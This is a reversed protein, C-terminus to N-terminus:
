ASGSPRPQHGGFLQQALATPDIQAAQAPATAQEGRLPGSHRPGPPARRECTHRLALCRAHSRRAGPLAAVTRRGPGHHPGPPNAPAHLGAPRGGGAHGRHGRDQLGGRRVGRRRGTARHGASGTDAPSVPPGPRAASSMRWAPWLTRIERRAERWATRALIAHPHFSAGTGEAPVSAPGNPSRAARSRAAPQTRAWSPRIGPRRRRQAPGTGATVAPHPASRSTGASRGPPWKARHRPPPPRRARRLCCHRGGRSRPRAAAREGDRPRPPADSAAYWRASHRADDPSAACRARHRVVASRVVTADMTMRRM